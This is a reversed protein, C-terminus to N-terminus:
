CPRHCRDNSASALVHRADPRRRTSTRTTPKIWGCGKMQALGDRSGTQPDGDPTRSCPCKSAPYAPPRSERRSPRAFGSRSRGPPSCEVQGASLLWGAGGPAMMDWKGLLEGANGAWWRKKCTRPISRSSPADRACRGGVGRLGSGRRPVAARFRATTRSERDRRPREGDWCWYRDLRVDGRRAQDTARGLTDSRFKQRGLVRL